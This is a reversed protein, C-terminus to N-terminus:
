VVAVCAWTSGNWFGLARLTNTGDTTVPWEVTTNTFSAGWAITRTATGTFEWCHLQGVTPTGSLNTTMSTINVALATVRHLDSNDTNTTPTASSAESTVRKTIRKNTLTETGTLSAKADLTAQTPIVRDTDLGIALTGSTTVPSGTITLGTPVTAAVSTVTGTNNTYLTDFYTKLFAKINTWTFRKISNSDASDVGVVSDADIPTTKSTAAANVAGINTATAYLNTTGEPLDDTDNLAPPITPKNTLDDYDGSFLEDSFAVQRAGNAPDYTSAPMDGTGSGTASVIPNAPDTDDVTIGTGAVITQIGGTPSNALAEAILAKVVNTNTGGQSMVPKGVISDWTVQQAPPILKRVAKDFDKIQATTIGTEAIYDGIIGSIQTEVSFAADDVIEQIEDETLKAQEALTAFIADAKKSVIDDAYRALTKQLQTQAETVRELIDSSLDDRDTDIAQKLEIKLAEHAEELDKKLEESAKAVVDDVKKDVDGMFAGKANETLIDAVASMPKILKTLNNEKEESGLHALVKDHEGKEILHKIILNKIEQPNDM